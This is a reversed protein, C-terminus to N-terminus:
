SRESLEELLKKADKLDATDFGETFWNYIETLMARAEDRRNTDRLLRALSVTARLEPFRALQKRATDVAARFSVEVIGTATPDLMLLLEGELRHLEPKSQADGTRDGAQLAHRVVSLGESPHRATLYAFGLDAYQWSSVAAGTAELSGIAGNTEVIAEEYKGLITLAQGRVLHALLRWYTFGHEVTLAELAEAHKLGEAGEGRWLYVSSACNLAVALLLPEARRRAFNLFELAQRLADDPFGLAVTCLCSYLLCAARWHEEGPALIDGREFLAIGKELHVRSGIFDGMQYLINALSAHAQLQMRPDDAQDSLKILNEGIERARGLEHRFASLISMGVLSYFLQTKDGLREALAQRHTLHSEYEAAAYGHTVLTV